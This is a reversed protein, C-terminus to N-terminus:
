GFGSSIKLHVDERLKEEERLIHFLKCGEAILGLVNKAMFIITTTKIHLLFKWLNIDSDLKKREDFLFFLAM